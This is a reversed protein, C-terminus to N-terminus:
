QGMFIDQVNGVMFIYFKNEHTSAAVDLVKFAIKEINLNSIKKELNWIKM